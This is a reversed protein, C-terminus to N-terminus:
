RIRKLANIPTKKSASIAPILGFLMAFFICVVVAIVGPVPRLVIIDVYNENFMHEIEEGWYHNIVNNAVLALLVALINGIVGAFFGIIGSEAVFISLIDSKTAGLSRLIGIERSREIVSIFLVMLLMLGATIVSVFMILSIIFQLIEVVTNIIPLQISSMDIVDEIYVDDKYKLKFNFLDDKVGDKLYLDFKYVNNLYTGIESDQMSDLKYFSSYNPLSMYEEETIVSFNIHNSKNIGVITYVKTDKVKDFNDKHLDFQNYDPCVIIDDESRIISNFMDKQTNIQDSYSGYIESNYGEPVTNEDIYPYAQCVDQNEYVEYPISYYYDTALELKAGNLKEWLTKINDIDYLRSAYNSSIVIENNNEPWKGGEYLKGFYRQEDDSTFKYSLEERYFGSNGLEIDNLKIPSLNLSKNLRLTKIDNDALLHDMYEQITMNKESLKEPTVVFRIDPSNNYANVQKEVNLKVGNSIGDILIFGTVGIALGLATLFSRWKKTRINKFSHMIKETFKFKTVKPKRKVIKVKENSQEKTDSVVSGDKLTIIRDAHETALRKNHTVMIVLKDASVEKILELVQKSTKKDLSGTPEDALIIDPDNILARAVSVRQRQGGSLQKPLKDAQDLIKVKELMELAKQKAVQKDVGQLKSSLMVNDLVSLHEILSYNQFIFGIKHNRFYDWQTETFKTTLNGDIVMHGTSARDLGGIINLLTTKGSGSKGLICVFRDDKFDLNVDKLALFGTNGDEYIKHINVLKIM